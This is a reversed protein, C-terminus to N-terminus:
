YREKMGAVLLMANLRQRVYMLDITSASDEIPDALRTFAALFAKRDSRPMERIATELRELRRDLVRHADSQLSDNM